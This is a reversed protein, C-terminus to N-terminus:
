FPPGDVPRTVKVEFHKLTKGGARKEIQTLRVALHDGVVPRQEALALKLRTQGATLTVEQGDDTTLSLQPVPTGDDFRHKAIATIKGAISDGVEAFKVFTSSPVVEPDDWISNDSV